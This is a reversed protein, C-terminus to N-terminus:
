SYAAYRPEVGTMVIIEEIHKLMNFYARSESIERLLKPHILDYTIWWLDGAGIHNGPYEQLKGLIKDLSLSIVGKDNFISNPHISEWRTTFVGDKFIFDDHLIIIKTAEPTFHYKM